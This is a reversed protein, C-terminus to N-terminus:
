QPKPTGIEWCYHLYAVMDKESTDDFKKKPGQDPRIVGGDM